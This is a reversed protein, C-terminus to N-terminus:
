NLVSWSDSEFADAILTDDESFDFDIDEKSDEDTDFDDDDSLEDDDLDDTHKTNKGLMNALQEELMSIKEIDTEIEDDVNDDDPSNMGSEELQLSSVTKLAEDNSDDAEAPIEDDFSSEEAPMIDAVITKKSLVDEVNSTIMDEQLSEESVIEENEVTSEATKNVIITNGHEFNESEDEFWFDIINSETVKCILIEAGEVGSTNLMEVASALTEDQTVLMMKYIPKFRSFASLFTSMVTTDAGDGRVSLLDAEQVKKLNRLGEDAGFIFNQKIDKVMDQLCDVVAKPVTIKLPKSINKIEPILIDLFNKTNEDCLASSDIFIHYTLLFKEFSETNSKKVLKNFLNNSCDYYYNVMEIWRKIISDSNEVIEDMVSSNDLHQISSASFSIVNCLSHIEQITLHISKEEIECERKYCVGDSNEAWKHIVAPDSTYSYIKKLREKPIGSLLSLREVIEKSKGSIKDLFRKVLSIVDDELEQLLEDIQVDIFDKM